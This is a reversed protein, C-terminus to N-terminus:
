TTIGSVAIYTEPIDVAVSAETTEDSAETTEPEPEFSPSPCGATDVGLGLCSTDHWTKRSLIGMKLRDDGTCDMFQCVSSWTAEPFPIPHGPASCRFRDMSRQLTLPSDFRLAWRATWARASDHTTHRKQQAKICHFMQWSGCTFKQQICLYETNSLQPMFARLVSPIRQLELTLDRDVLSLAEPM